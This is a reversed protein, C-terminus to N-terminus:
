IQCTKWSERSCYLLIWHYIGSLQNKWDNIYLTEKPRHYHQLYHDWLCNANSLHWLLIMSVHPMVQRPPCSWFYSYFRQSEEDSQFVHHNKVKVREYRKSKNWCSICEEYRMPQNSPANTFNNGCKQTPQLEEPTEIFRINTKKQRRRFRQSICWKTRVTSQNKVAM